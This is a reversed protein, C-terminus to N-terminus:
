KLQAIFLEVTRKLFLDREAQPGMMVEHEGAEFEILTGLPWAAMRTRIPQADVIRENGGLATLAPLNPSPLAKLTACEALATSIWGFTPGALTLAPQESLHTIMMAWMEPARTLMNQEFAAGHPYPTKGTGLAYGERLPTRALSHAMACAIPAAPLAIGWMPASFSAAKFAPGAEAQGATETAEADILHRLAIAGGMSHALVFWPQQMRMGAAYSRMARLDTQYDAMDNVHGKHPDELARDSLGQGRWDIILTEFGAKALQRVADGYKEIYETRGPLLFVTGKAATVNWHALRLRVGDSTTVWQAEGGEPVLALTEFLPAGQM